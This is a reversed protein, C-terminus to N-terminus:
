RVGGLVEVETTSEASRFRLRDLLRRRTPGDVVEGGVVELEEAPSLSGVTTLQEALRGASSVLLSRGLHRRGTHEGSAAAAAVPDYPIAGLVPIGTFREIEGPSHRGSGIVVLAALEGWRALIRPGADRVQMVSAADSRVVIVLAGAHDSWGDSEEPGTPLRGVDALVDVPGDASASASALLGAIPWREADMASRRTGVLVELGGPLRQVHETLAVPAESRRQEARFSAWGLVTSLAFRAALDGGAPDCEALVVPRGEPWTAGVLSATTTVGPAGKVSAFAIVTM